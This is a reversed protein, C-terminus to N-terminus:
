LSPPLRPRRTVPDIAPDDIADPDNLHAGRHPSSTEDRWTPEVPGFGPAADASPVPPVEGPPTLIAPSDAAAVRSQGFNAEDVSTREREAAAADAATRQGFPVSRRLGEGPEATRPEFAAADAAGAELPDVSRSLVPDRLPDRNLGDTGRRLDAEDAHAAAAAFAPDRYVDPNGGVATQAAAGRTRAFSSSDRPLDAAHAAAADYGPAYGPEDVRRFGPEGASSFGPAVPVVGGRVDAGYASGAPGVPLAGTTRAREEARQASRAGTALRKDRRHTAGALRVEILGYILLIGGAGQVAFSAEESLIPIHLGVQWVLLIAGTVWNFHGLVRTVAVTLFGDVAAHAALWAFGLLAVGFLQGILGPSSAFPAVPPYLSLWPTAIFFLGLLLTVVANIILLVRLLPKM